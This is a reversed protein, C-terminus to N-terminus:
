QGAACQPGRSDGAPQVRAHVPPATAAPDTGAVEVVAVIDGLSDYVPAPVLIMGNTGTAENRM